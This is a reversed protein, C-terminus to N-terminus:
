ARVLPLLLVLPLLADPLRLHLATAVTNVASQILREHEPWHCQGSLDFGARYLTVVKDRDEESEAWRLVDFLNDTYSLRAGIQSLLPPSLPQGYVLWSNVLRASRVRAPSGPCTDLASCSDDARQEHHPCPLESLEQTPIVLGRRLLCVLVAANCRTFTHRYGYGTDNINLGIALMIDICDVRNRHVAQNLVIQGNTRTGTGFSNLLALGGCENLLRQFVESTDTVLSDSLIGVYVWELRQCSNNRRSRRHRAFRGSLDDRDALAQDEARKRRARFFLWVSSVVIAAACAVRVVPPTKTSM